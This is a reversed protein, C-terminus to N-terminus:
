RTLHRHHAHVSGGARQNSATNWSFAHPAPTTFRCALGSSLLRSRPANTLLGREEGFPTLGAVPAIPMCDRPGLSASLFPGSTLHSLLAM